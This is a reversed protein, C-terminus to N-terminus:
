LATGVVRALGYAIALGPALFLGTVWPLRPVRFVHVRGVTLNHLATVRQLYFALAVFDGREATLRKGAGIGWEFLQEGDESDLRVEVIQESGRMSRVQLEEVTGFVLRYPRNRRPCTYSGTTLPVQHQGGCVGCVVETATM